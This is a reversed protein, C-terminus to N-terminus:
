SYVRTVSSYVALPRKLRDPKFADLPFPDNLQIMSEQRAINPPSRLVPVM